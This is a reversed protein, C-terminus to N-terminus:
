LADLRELLYKQKRRAVAIRDGNLLTVYANSGQHFDRVHDINVLHTKHTRIFSNPDLRDEFTKLVKSVIITKGDELILKCYNNMGEIRVLAHSRILDIRGCSAVALPYSVSYQRYAKM